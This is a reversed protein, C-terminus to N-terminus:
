RRALRREPGTYAPDAGQRREVGADGPGRDPDPPRHEREPASSAAQHGGHAAVDGAGGLGSEPPAESPRSPEPHFHDDRRPM